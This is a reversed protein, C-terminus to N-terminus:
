TVATVARINGIRNIQVVHLKERMEEITSAKDTQPYSHLIRDVFAKYAAEPSEAHITAFCSDHGSGMLEWLAGANATSIEGGIIADPTMRVCLDIVKPYDFDNTQETRSLVLHLHNPHPVLLERTDELTIVRMHNDLVKLVNNLFTTKGTATAGSVLVHKGTRIAYMLREFPEEPLADANAGKQKALADKYEEIINDNGEKLGYSDFGYAVDDSHIRICIGIGGTLDNNDFMVNRGCIASFRHDGPLTAYVVPTGHDPEFNLEFTNAIIHLLDVLYTKTLKKDEYAKWPHAMRGRRRVWIQGPKNIAIEELGDQNYWYALPRLVSNLVHFM